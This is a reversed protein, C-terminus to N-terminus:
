APRTALAADFAPAAEYAVGGVATLGAEAGAEVAALCPVVEEPRRACLMRVPDRYRRWGGDATPVLATCTDM